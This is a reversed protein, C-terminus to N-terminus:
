FFANEEFSNFFFYEIRSFFDVLDDKKAEVSINITYRAVICLIHAKM